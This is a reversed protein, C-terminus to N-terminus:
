TVLKGQEKGEFIQVLGRGNKKKQIRKVSLVCLFVQTQTGM